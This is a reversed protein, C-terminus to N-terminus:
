FAHAFLAALADKHTQGISRKVEKGGKIVVITSQQVVRLRRRLEHERDFDAVFVVLGRFRPEDLLEGVVTKQASCTSCWEAVFAVVFGQPRAMAAEFSSKDYPLEGARAGLCLLALLAFIRALSAASASMFVGHHGICPVAARARTMNRPM